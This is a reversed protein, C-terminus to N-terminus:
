IKILRRLLFLMRSLLLNLLLQSLLLKLIWKALSIFLWPILFTLLLFNFLSGFLLFSISLMIYFNFFNDTIYELAFRLEGDVLFRLELIGFVDRFQEAWFMYLRRDLFADIVLLFQICVLKKLTLCLVLDFQLLENFSLMMNCLCWLTSLCNFITIGFFDLILSFEILTSAAEWLTLNKIHFFCSELSLNVDIQFYQGFYLNFLVWLCGLEM